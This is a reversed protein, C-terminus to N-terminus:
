FYKNIIANAEEEHTGFLMIACLMDRLVYQGETYWILNTMHPIVKLLESLTLPRIFGENQYERVKGHGLLCYQTPKTPSAIRVKTQHVSGGGLVVDGARLYDAYGYGNKNHEAYSEFDKLVRWFRPPLSALYGRANKDAPPMAHPQAKKM